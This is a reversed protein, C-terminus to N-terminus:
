SLEVSMICRHAFVHQLIVLGCLEEIGILLGDFYRDLAICLLVLMIHRDCDTAGAALM